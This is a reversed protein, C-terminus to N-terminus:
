IYKLNHINKYKIILSDIFDLRSRVDNVPWWYVDNESAKPRNVEIINMLIVYETETILSKSKLFFCRTCLGLHSHLESLVEKKLLKLLRVELIEEKPLRHKLIIRVLAYILALVIGILILNIM